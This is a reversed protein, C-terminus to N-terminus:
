GDLVSLEVPLGSNLNPKLKHIYLGELIRLDTRSGRFKNLVKFNKTDIRHDHQRGHDRIASPGCTTLPHGTRVSFGRHEAIRCRFQRITSGVYSSCCDECEYMYIISSCVSDPLRDKHRFISDINFNNKFVLYFNLQPFRENVLKNIENKIKHSIYGYYPMSIYVKKKQVDFSNPKRCYISNLFNKLTKDFILAPYGNNIFFQKLFKIDYHFALYTSSVSYARHVLTKISNIKYIFPAFSLFHSGLGTFTLKRFVSSHFQQDLITIKSDLFSLSNDSQIEMTFKINNHRSNLFNLFLNAKNVDDFLVFTDDVYRRYFYPKHLSSCQELWEKEYHCMFINALTPGLPSGMAVGDIQKYYKENFLFFSNNTALELLTKFESKTLGHFKNGNIFIKNLIINITEKLPIQTFLSTVDYSVM